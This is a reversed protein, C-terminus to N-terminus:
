GAGRQPRSLCSTIVQGHGLGDVLGLEVLLGGRLDLRAPASFSKRVELSM